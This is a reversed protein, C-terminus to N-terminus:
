FCRELEANRVNANALETTLRDLDENQKAFNVDLVQVTEISAELRTKTETM